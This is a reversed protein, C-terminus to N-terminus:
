SQLVDRFQRTLNLLGGSDWREALKGGTILIIHTELWELQKGTPAVSWGNGTLEGQHTGRWTMRTVVNDGEAIQDEITCQLDPLATRRQTILEKVHQIGDLFRRGGVIHVYDSACIEDVVPLNGGWAEEYFRRVIAKNEESM